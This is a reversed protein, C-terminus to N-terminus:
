FLTAYRGKHGQSGLYLIPKYLNYDWNEAFSDLAVARIVDALLLTHNGLDLHLALTAFIIASADEIYPIGKWEGHKLGLRQLKEAGPADSFGAVDFSRVHAIDLWNVSFKKSALISNLTRSNKRLSVAIRPPEDTAAMCSSVAAMTLSAGQGSM